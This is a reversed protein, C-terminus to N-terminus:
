TPFVTKLAAVLKEQTFPKDILANVGLAKFETEEREDLRGSVVIVGAQPLRGKLLRVFSLGDMHPMHLDTIVARLAARKETVQLLAETGDAATLVKFNLATLVARLVNRVSPEDDVVLITEGNGRFATEAQALLSADGADSGYAPLYVAFASGQGSRGTPQTPHASPPAVRRLAPTSYVRVFGGHSKVIGIVTSLGLGTGKGPGKTTFFPEFILDLVEPPIGTGTDTVRWVVYQGPKAEPNASAYAADIEMNEAELTLTGGEPMADRANVCLNLLVQHLQTADGLITRLDKAYSTRLEINKPFTGQILKGMEKLLHRPQLLLREGEAGKAFTLLQKVMDAGRKAGAQILELYNSATDPFQLRLLETSMMIPALANNLDHAVGGALTGISELRQSRLMQAELKNQETVDRKVAVYNVIQGAGDRVPSITSEEEYLTGDKRKNILHGSWVEGRTLMAWMRRYFEADHKGSRLLRPNQGLAEERTYGTIKEFAPNVYLIAANADTIMVAEAVQDVATALRAQSEEARMRETMDWFIGQIGVVDGSVDRLPTKMVQVFVKQRDAGVHEELQDLTQGSEMVHLDDQRYAEGLEAPFLEADTKGVIEELPHGVDECFRQNCFLFRGQRDKRFVGQPLNEVLSSYLERSDRLTKEAQKRETIDWFIGLVGVCEGAENQVPTKTTHVWSEKGNRVYPEELEETVGTEMVRWDDARYKEALERPYFDHDTKGGIDRPAIGLDRAYNENCSVYVSQRDKLFIRQPLSEVLLRYKRESERLAEDARKRETIDAFTVVAGALRGQECIPTSAYEVPFSTGDKRWFVETSVHRVVGERYAAYIQCEEGPYPSGDPKTHHWTSHSPRGILEEAEYGLMRAAAPNVFTHNGQLDLGLIGEAASSLILEKQQNLRAVDAEARKRETVDRIIATFARENGIGAESIGLELPFVSGDKRQGKLEVVKGLVTPQGTELYRQVGRRHRGGYEPPILVDVERGLMEEATFGFIRAAASNYVCIRLDAGITIIADTAAEILAHHREASERLAAEAQRRGRREAADRLERAVAPGLRALKDKMVYDNAGAKMAAVAKDEGVTASVIIFPLDLGRALLLELARLGDFQPLNYDALIIEWRQDLQALYDPEAEVRKWKPEYGARQLERLMLDADDARDELILVKLKTPM